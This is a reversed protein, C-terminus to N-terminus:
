SRAWTGAHYREPTPMGDVKGDDIDPLPALWLIAIM